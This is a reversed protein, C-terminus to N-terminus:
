RVKTTIWIQDRPIASSKLAEGVEAENRYFEATDIHKYGLQLASIVANIGDEGEAQYVGLGLVPLKHGTNLEVTSSLDVLRSNSMVAFCHTLAQRLIQIRGTTKAVM